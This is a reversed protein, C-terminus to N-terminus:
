HVKVPERESSFPDAKSIIESIQQRRGDGVLDASHRMGGVHLLKSERNHQHLTSMATLSRFMTQMTLDKPSCHQRKLDQKVLKVLVQARAFTFKFHSNENKQFNDGDVRIHFGGGSGM